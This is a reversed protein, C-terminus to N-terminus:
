RKELKDLAGEISMSRQRLTELQIKLQLRRNVREDYKRRYNHEAWRFGTDIRKSEVIAEAINMRESRHKKNKLRETDSDSGIDVPLITKRKRTKASSTTASHPSKM